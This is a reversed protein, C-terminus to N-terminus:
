AAALARGANPNIEITLPGDLEAPEGDLTAHIAHDNDCSLNVRPAKLNTVGEITRWDSILAELAISTLDIVGTPAIIGVDLDHPQDRKIFVGAAAAHAEVDMLTKICLEPSLDFLEPTELTKTVATVLEAGRLAERAQVLQTLKGFLAGVFFHQDAIMGAPVKIESPSALTKNLITKWDTEGKHIAKHVLNMTGGPLALIPASGVFQQNFACAITGDGGWVIFIDDEGLAHAYDRLRPQLDEGDFVDVVPTINQDGLHATIQEVADTPISGSNQNIVVQCVM